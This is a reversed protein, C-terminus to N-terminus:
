TLETPAIKWKGLGRHICNKEFAHWLCKGGISM